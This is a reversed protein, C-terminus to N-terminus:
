VQQFRMRLFGCMESQASEHTCTHGGGGCVCMHVSLSLGTHACALGSHPFYIPLVLPLVSEQLGIAVRGEERGTSLMTPQSEGHAEELSPKSAHSLCLALPSPRMQGHACYLPLVRFHHPYPTLEAGPHYCSGPLSVPREDTSWHLPCSISCSAELGTPSHSLRFVGASPLSTGTLDELGAPALGHGRLKALDERVGGGRSCNKGVQGPHPNVSGGSFKM